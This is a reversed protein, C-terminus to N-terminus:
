LALNFALIRKPFSVCAKFRSNRKENVTHPVYQCEADGIVELHLLMAQVEKIERDYTGEKLDNADYHVRMRPDQVELLFNGPRFPNFDTALDQPRSLLDQSVVFRQPIVVDLAGGNEPQLESRGLRATHEQLSRSGKDQADPHEQLREQNNPQKIHGYTHM